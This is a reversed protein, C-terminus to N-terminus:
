NKKITVRSCLTIFFPSNNIIYIILFYFFFNCIYIISKKKQYKKNNTYEIQAYLYHLFFILKCVVSATKTINNNFYQTNKFFINERESKKYVLKIM